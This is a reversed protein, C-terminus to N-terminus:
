VRIRSRQEASYKYFIAVFGKFIISGSNFNRFRFCILLLILFGSVSGMEVSYETCTHFSLPLIILVVFSTREKKDM